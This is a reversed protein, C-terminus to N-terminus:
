HFFKTQLSFVIPPFVKQLLHDKSTLWSKTSDEKRFGWVSRVMGSINNEQVQQLWCGGECVLVVRMWRRLGWNNTCSWPPPPGLDIAVYFPPNHTHARAYCRVRGFRVAKSVANTQAAHEQQSINNYADSGQAAGWSREWWFAGAATASARDRESKPRNVNNASQSTFSLTLPHFNLM